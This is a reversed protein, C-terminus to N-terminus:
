ISGQTVGFIIFDAYVDGVDICIFIRMRYKVLVFSCGGSHRIDVTM